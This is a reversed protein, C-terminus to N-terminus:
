SKQLVSLNLGSAWWRDRRGRGGCVVTALKRVNIVVASVKSHGVAWCEWLADRRLEKAGGKRQWRFM